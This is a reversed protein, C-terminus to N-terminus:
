STRRSKKKLSSLTKKELKRLAPEFSKRKELDMRDIFLIGHLHDIEHQVARSLLGTAIFQLSHGNLLTTSVHVTVARPIEASIEPFSLCGEWGLIEIGELYTIRPNILVLPMMSDLSVEQVGLFIQSPRDTGRVDIVTLQLAKGVQQAALGVGRHVYMTEIMDHALQRIATTIERIETGKKRLVPHGYYVLPLIM